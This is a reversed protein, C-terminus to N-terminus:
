PASDSKSDSPRFNSDRRARSLSCSSSLDRGDEVLQGTKTQLEWCEFTEPLLRIAIAVRRLDPGICEIRDVYKCSEFPENALRPSGEILPERWNMGTPQRRIPGVPCGLRSEVQGDPSYASRQIKRM